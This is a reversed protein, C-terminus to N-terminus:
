AARAASGAATSGATESAISGAGEDPASGAPVCCAVLFDGESRCAFFPSGRFRLARMASSMRTLRITSRSINTFCNLHFTVSATDASSTILRVTVPPSRYSKITMSSCKPGFRISPVVAMGLSRAASEPLSTIMEHVPFAVSLARFPTSTSAMQLLGTGSQRSPVICLSRFANNSLRLRRAAPEATAGLTAKSMETLSPWPGSPRSPQRNSQM